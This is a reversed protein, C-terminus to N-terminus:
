ACVKFHLMEKDSKLPIQALQLNTHKEKTGDAIHKPYANLFYTSAV